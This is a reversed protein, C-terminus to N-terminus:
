DLFIKINKVLSIRKMTNRNYSELKKLYNVLIISKLFSMKMAISNGYMSIQNSPKNTFLLKM